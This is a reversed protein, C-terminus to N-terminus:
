GGFWEQYTSPFHSGAVNAELCDRSVLKLSVFVSNVVLDLRVFAAKAPFVKPSTPVLQTMFLVDVPLFQHQGM